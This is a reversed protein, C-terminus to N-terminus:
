IRDCGLQRIKQLYGNTACDIRAQFLRLSPILYKMDHIRGDPIERSVIRNKASAENDQM